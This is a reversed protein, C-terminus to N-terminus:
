ASREREARWARPVVSTIAAGARQARGERSGGGLRTGAGASTSAGLGKITLVTTTSSTLKDGAGSPRELCIGLLLCNCHYVGFSPPRKIVLTYM